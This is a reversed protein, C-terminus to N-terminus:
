PDMWTLQEWPEGVYKQPAGPTSRGETVIRTIELTLREVIEPHEFYLNTCEGPDKKLNYLEYIAEGKEPVFFRPELSGGSGRFMNLKWDGERIAFHGSISHHIVPGRLGPDYNEGRLLSYLSYSDEGANEPLPAGVIEAITALYDTQCVPIDVKRGPEIVAPWRM